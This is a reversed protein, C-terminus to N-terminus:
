VNREREAKGHGTKGMRLYPGSGLLRIHFCKHKRTQTQSESGVKGSVIFPPFSRKNSYM